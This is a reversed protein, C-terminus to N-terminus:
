AEELLSHALHMIAPASHMRQASVDPLSTSTCTSQDQGRRGFGLGDGRQQCAANPHGQPDHPMPLRLAGVRM